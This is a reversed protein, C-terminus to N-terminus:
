ARLKECCPNSEESGSDFVRFGSIVSVRVVQAM